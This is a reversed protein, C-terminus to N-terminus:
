AAAPEPELSLPEVFRTECLMLSIEEILVDVAANWDPPNEVAARLRLRAARFGQRLAKLIAAHLPALERQVEDKRVYIGLEELAKPASKELARLQEAVKQWEKFIYNAKHEDIDVVAMYKAHLTAEASRLRDLMAVLGKESESVEIRGIPTPPPPAPTEAVSESNLEDILRRAALQLRDPCERPSYVRAFWAPMDAPFALPAPDVKAKGDAIWNKIQRVSYGWKAALEAQTLKSLASKPGEGRLAFVPERQKKLRAYEEEILQRERATLPQGSSVKAVINAVDKELMREVLEATM